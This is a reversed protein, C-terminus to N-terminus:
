WSRPSNPTATSWTDLPLEISVHDVDEAPELIKEEEAAPAETEEATDAASRHSCGKQLEEIAAEVRKLLHAAAATTAANGRLM